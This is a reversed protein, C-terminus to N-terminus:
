DRCRCAMWAALRSFRGNRLLHDRGRGAAGAAALGPRVGAIWLPLFRCHLGAVARHRRCGCRWSAFVGRWAAALGVAGIGRPRLLLAMVAFYYAHFLGGAASFVVGYVVAWGAWVAFAARRRAGRAAAVGALALPLLRIAGDAAGRSAASGGACLRSVAAAGCHPSTAPPPRAAGQARLARFLPRDGAGADFQESSDVFPSQRSADFRLCRVM